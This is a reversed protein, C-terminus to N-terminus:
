LSSIKVLTKPYELLNREFRETTFEALPLITGNGEELVHKWIQEQIRNSRDELLQKTIEWTSFCRRGVM